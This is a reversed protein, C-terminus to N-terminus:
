PAELTPYSSPRRCCGHAMSDQYMRRVQVIPRNHHLCAAGRIDDELSDVEDATAAGCDIRFHVYKLGALNQLGLVLGGDGYKFQCRALLLLKLRQLKPMAGPEFELAAESWCLFTFKVLLQFGQSRIAHRPHFIASDGEKDDFLTVTLSSLIPLSALINIGEKSVEGRLEIYLRTLNLLSSSQHPVASSKNWNSLSLRQLPPPTGGCLSMFPFTADPWGVVSLQRLRTFLKTLTSICAKKHGEVDRVVTVTRWFIELVKLNILDGLGQISKVSQLGLEITSLEELARLNGIGDPLQVDWEVRLRVLRQLQIISAPLKRIRTNSIDLTELHQLKEIDEPLEQTGDTIRCYKMQSIRKVHGLYFEGVGGGRINLVRLVQSSLFESAHKGLV